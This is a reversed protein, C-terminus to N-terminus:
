LTGGGESRYAVTETCYSPKQDITKATREPSGPPNGSVKELSADPSGGPDFTIM